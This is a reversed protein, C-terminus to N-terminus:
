FPSSLTIGVVVFRWCRVCVQADVATLPPLAIPFAASCRPVVFAFEECVSVCVLLFFVEPYHVSSFAFPFFFTTLFFNQVHTRRRRLELGLRPWGTQLKWVILWHYKPKPHQNSSTCHVTLPSWDPLLFKSSPCSPAIYLFLSSFPLSPVQRPSPSHFLQAVSLRLM